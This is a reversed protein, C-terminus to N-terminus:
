RSAEHYFFPLTVVTAGIGPLQPPRQAVEFKFKIQQITSLLVWTTAIRIRGPLGILALRLSGSMDIFTCTHIADWVNPSSIM